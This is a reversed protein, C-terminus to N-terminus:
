ETFQKEFNALVMEWARDFYDFLKDWDEGKGWGAQALVVKIKGPEIEDFQLIVRTLQYRLDGFDPPANWEFSLMEMPLYSLIRCDESGRMGYPADMMFYIEFPGGVRLEVKANPSFFSKVGETTTWANWVEELTAPVTVEKHIMKDSPNKVYRDPSQNEALLSVRMEHIEYTHVGHVVSPENKMIEIAEAESNVNLIVLGFVPDFCPGAMYVSKKATLDKLYHFHETMIKEEEATMNEPWGDRTGLLKVFYQKSESMEDEGQAAFTNTGLGVMFNIALFIALV